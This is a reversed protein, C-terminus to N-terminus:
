LVTDAIEIPSLVPVFIGFHVHVRPSECATVNIVLPRSLRSFGQKHGIESSHLIYTNNMTTNTM